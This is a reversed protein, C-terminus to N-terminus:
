FIKEMRQQLSIGRNRVCSTHHRCIILNKSIIKEFRPVALKVISFLKNQSQHVKLEFSSFYAESFGMEVKTCNYEVQVFKVGTCRGTVLHANPLDQFISTKAYPQCVFKLLFFTYSITCTYSMFRYGGKLRDSIEFSMNHRM